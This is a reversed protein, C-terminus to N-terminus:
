LLTDAPKDEDYEIFAGLDLYGSIHKLHSECSSRSHHIFLHLDPALNLSMCLKGSVIEDHTLGKFDSDKLEYLKRLYEPNSILSKIYAAYTKKLNGERVNVDFKDKISCLTNKGQNGKSKNKTKPPTTNLTNEQSKEIPNIISDFVKILLEKFGPFHDARVNNGNPTFKNWFVQMLANSPDNVEKEVIAKLKLEQSNVRAHDLLKGVNFSKFSLNMFVEQLMANGQLEELDFDLAAQENVTEDLKMFFQYCYGDTLIAVQASSALLKSAINSDNLDSHLAKVDILIEPIKPTAFALAYDVTEDDVNYDAIVKTYDFVNWDLVERLLRLVLYNKTQDKNFSNEKLQIFSTLDM